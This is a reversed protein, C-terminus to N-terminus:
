NEEDRSSRKFTNRVSDFYADSFKNDLVWLIYKKEYPISNRELYDEPYVLIPPTDAGYHSRLLHLASFLTKLNLRESDLVIAHICNTLNSLNLGTDSITLLLIALTRGEKKLCFVHRERKLGLKAYEASLGPDSEEATELDLAELMLGGSVAEYYESLERLDEDRAPFLQFAESSADVEDPLWLYAFTDLSSGKKDAIDKAVNGFVRNPFRNERRYYCMLRLMHASPHHHIDNTFRGMEDLVSVGALGYGSRSAAHHHIMWSDSYFRLMSMHGFIQGKDQFLFHRSITPSELYLTKYTQKFDDKRSQLSLYKSPYIFGSEFFFRWLEDMDVSSCIRLKEDVSQHVIASLTVQDKPDMDLFVIGCRVVFSNDQSRIVNRYLVQGPCRLVFSNAIEISLEPIVMGPLLFSRDFFEEVCIGSSSINEVKLFVQKDTLSHTFRVLPAPLLAQRKSRYRLPRYRRINTFNPALVVVGARREMRTVLCEGSYVVVDNRSLALTVPTGMNIWHLPASDKAIVRFSVASFNDLTGELRIGFQMVSASIGDCAHRDMARLGVEYGSIPLLFTVERANLSVVEAKVVIQSHGDSLLLKDCEYEALHKVQFDPEIWRCVLTEDACPLPHAQCYLAAGREKHRFSVFVTGERFNVLNFLNLLESRKVRKGEPQGQSSASAGPELGDANSEARTSSADSDDHM